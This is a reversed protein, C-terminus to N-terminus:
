KGLSIYRSRPKSPVVGFRGARCSTSKIVLRLFPSNMKKEKFMFITHTFTCICTHMHRFCTHFLLVTGYAWQKGM